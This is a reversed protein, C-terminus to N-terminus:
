SEPKKRLEFGMKGAMYALPRIDHSIEMIALLTDAGLKARRDHPDVERLLTSCRKGLRRALTQVNEHDHTVVEHILQSFEKM